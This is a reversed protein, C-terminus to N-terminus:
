QTFLDHKPQYNKLHKTKAIIRSLLLLLPITRCCNLSHCHYYINNDDDHNQEKLLTM